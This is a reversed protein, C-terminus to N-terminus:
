LRARNGAIKREKLNCFSVVESGARVWEIKIGHTPNVFFATEQAATQTMTRSTKAPDFIDLVASWRRGAYDLFIIVPETAM